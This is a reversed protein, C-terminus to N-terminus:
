PTASRSDDDTSPEIEMLPEAVGDRGFRGAFFETVLNHGLVTRNGCEDLSRYFLWQERGVAVRYGAAVDAPQITRDEAVTLQRWTVRRALRRPALDIWLPAFLARAHTATQSLELGREVQSLRGASPEARWEPLALPLVTARRRGGLLSGERTEAAPEFAIGEALPLTCRYELRGPQAGLVADAWFLFRDERAFLLHRQIRVDQELSLQLELYDADGDSVWCVHDWGAVPLLPAGDLTLSINCTGSFLVDGGAILEGRLEDGHYDLTLRDSATWAPRLVALCAAESEAGPSPGRGRSSPSPRRGDRRSAPSLPFVAHLLAQHGSTAYGRAARWFDSDSSRQGAQELPAFAQRGDPRRLRWLNVLLQQYRAALRADLWECGTADAILRSRTWSAAMAPWVRLDIDPLMGQEDLHKEMSQEIAQWGQELLPACDPLEPLLYGLTLPLEGRVLQAVIPIANDDARHPLGLLQGLLGLWTQQDVFRALPALARGWALWRLADGLEPAPPATTATTLDRLHEVAGQGLSAPGTARQVGHAFAISKWRDDTLQDAVAELGWALAPGRTTFIAGLSRPATRQALHKRWATWDAWTAPLSCPALAAASNLDRAARAAAGNLRAAGAALPTFHQPSSLPM